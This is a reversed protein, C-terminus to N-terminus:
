IFIINDLIPRGEKQYEGRYQSSKLLIQSLPKFGNKRKSNSFPHHRQCDLYSLVKVKHNIIALM